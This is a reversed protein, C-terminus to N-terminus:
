PYNNKFPKFVKSDMNASVSTNMLEMLVNAEMKVSSEKVHMQHINVILVKMDESANVNTSM